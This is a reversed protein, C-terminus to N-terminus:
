FCQPPLKNLNGLGTVDLLKRLNFSPVNLNGSLTGVNDMSTIKMDGNFSLNALHGSLNDLTLEQVPRNFKLDAKMGSAITDQTKGHLSYQNTFDFNKVSFNEFNKDYTLKGSTHFKTSYAKSRELLGSMSLTVSARPQINKANLNFDSLEIPTETPSPKWHVHGQSININSIAFSFDSEKKTAESDQQDAVLPAATAFEASKINTEDLYIEPKILELKNFVVHKRLIPLWKIHIDVEQAKVFLPEPSGYENQIEIETVKLTPSPFLGWSLDGHIIFPRKIINSVQRSLEDKYESPDFYAMLLLGSAIFMLITVATIVFLRRFIPKM